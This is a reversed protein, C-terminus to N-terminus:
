HKDIVQFVPPQDVVIAEPIANEGRRRVELVIVATLLAVFSIGFGIKLSRDNSVIGHFGIFINLVGMVMAIRGVWYHAFNWYKRRKSDSSPRGVFQCVELGALFFVTYGIFKHALFIAGIKQYLNRGISISIIGVFFGIFQVLSHIYYWSPEMHRFYRAVLLGTPTVVGWGIIATMGHYKRLDNVNMPQARLHASSFEIYTTTSNTHKPLLGNKLPNASGIALLIPQYALSTPFKLQFAIYLVDGHVVVVPSATTFRLDGKNPIVKSMNKGELYYQRIGSFGNKEVWAVMASSGVMSGNRSFGIGIWKHNHKGSLVITTVNQSDQYFSLSFMQQWILSCTLSSLDSYPPPLVAGLNSNCTAPPNIDSYTAMAKLKFGVISIFCFFSLLLKNSSYSVAM